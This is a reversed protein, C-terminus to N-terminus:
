AAPLHTVHTPSPDRARWPHTSLIPLAAPAGFLLPPPVAVIAGATVDCFASGALAPAALDLLAEGEISSRNCRRLRRRSCSKIVSSSYLRLRLSIRSWSQYNRPDRMSYGSGM